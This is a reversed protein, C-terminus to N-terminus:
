FPYMWSRNVEYIAATWHSILQPPCKYLEDMFDGLTYDDRKKPFLTTLREKGEEDVDALILSGISGDPGGSSLWIQYHQLEVPNVVVRIFRGDSTWEQTQLLNARLYDMRATTPKVWVWSEGTPDLDMLKKQQPVVAAAKIPM